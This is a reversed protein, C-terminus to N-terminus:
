YKNVNNQLEMFIERYDKEFFSDKQWVFSFDHTVAFDKLLIKRLVKNKLEQSVAAEYLFSIGCNYSLMSKIAGMNGIEIVHEFYDISLNRRELDKVLVERTGSGEERIILREGKLDELREVPSAFKYESGCVPIFSERSFIASAYENRPFNGEMVAFEIEGRDIKGLLEKTNATIIRVSLGPQKNLLGTLAKAIVFEGITLTVGFHLSKRKEKLLALKEKMYMSDHRQASLMRYLLEGEKTVKLKKGEYAFLKTQYFQELTHIHQSVAPQTINLLKATRTFNMTRCAELFTETRYDLM